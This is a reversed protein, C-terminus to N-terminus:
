GPVAVDPAAVASTSQFLRLSRYSVRNGFSAPMRAISRAFVPKWTQAVAEFPSTGDLRFNVRGFSSFNRSAREGQRTAISAQDVDKVPPADSQGCAVLDAQDRRATRSTRSRALVGGVVGLGDGGGNPLRAHSEHLRLAQIVLGRRNGDLRFLIEHAKGGPERKM